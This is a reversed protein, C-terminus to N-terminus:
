SKKESKTLLRSSFFAELSNGLTLSDVTRVSCTSEKEKLIERVFLDTNMEHVVYLKPHSIWETVGCYRTAYVQTGQSLAECVALGWSELGTSLLAFSEKMLDLLEKHPMTGIFDVFPQDRLWRTTEEDFNGVVHMSVQLKQAIEIAIDLRKEPASRGVYLFHKRSVDVNNNETYLFLPETLPHVFIYERPIGLFTLSTKAIESYTIFGGFETWDSWNAPTIRKKPSLTKSINPANPLDLSDIFEQSIWRVELITISRLGPEVLDWIDSPVIAFNQKKILNSLRKKFISRLLKHPLGVLRSYSSSSSLLVLELIASSRYKARSNDASLYRSSLIKTLKFPLKAAIKFKKPLHLLRLVTLAHSKSIQRELFTQQRSISVYLGQM